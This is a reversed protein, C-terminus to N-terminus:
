AAADERGSAALAGLARSSARLLDQYGINKVSFNVTDVVFTEHSACNIGLLCISAAVAPQRVKPASKQLDQLVPLARTDGIKGMALVADEQLPGDLKAVDMIPALAYVAKYDGMAEIVAARFLDVGRM